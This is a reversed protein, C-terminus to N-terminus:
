NNTKQVVAPSNFSVDLRDDKDLDVLILQDSFLLSLARIVTGTIGNCFWTDFSSGPEVGVLQCILAMLGDIAAVLGTILFGVGPIATIVAVIAYVVISVALKVAAADYELQNDYDGVLFMILAIAATLVFGAVAWVKASNWLKVLINANASVLAVGSKLAQMVKLGWVANGLGWIYKANSYVAGWGKDLSNVTSVYFQQSLSAYDTFRGTDVDVTKYYNGLQQLALSLGSSIDGQRASGLAALIDAQAAAFAASLANAAATSTDSAAALATVVSKAAYYAQMEALMHQVLTTAVDGSLTLGTNTLVDSNVDTGNLEVLGNLGIILALAYGQALSIAGDRALAYDTITEGNAALLTDLQADTFVSELDAALATQYDDLSMDAWVGAGKYQFPSLRLIASTTQDVQTMDVSVSSGSISAADDSLGAIRNTEEGAYLLSATDSIAASAHVS